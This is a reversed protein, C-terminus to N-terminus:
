EVLRLNRIGYARCWIPDLKSLPVDEGRCLSEMVELSPGALRLAKILALSEQRERTDQFRELDLAALFADNDTEKTM